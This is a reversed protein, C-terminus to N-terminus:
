VVKRNESGVTMFYEYIINQSRLYFNNSLFIAYTCLKCRTGIYLLMGALKPRTLVLVNVHVVFICCGLCVVIRSASVFIVCM